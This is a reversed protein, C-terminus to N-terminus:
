LIFFTYERLIELAIRVDTAKPCVPEELADNDDDDDDNGAKASSEAATISEIIEEDTTLPEANFFNEDVSLVDEAASGDPFVKPACVALRAELEQLDKFLDDNEILATDQQEEPIGAKKFCNVITIAKVKEWALDLMKVADVISFVPLKKIKEIAEILKRVSISKYHAKLSRIM